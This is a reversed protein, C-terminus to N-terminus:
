EMMSLLREKPAYGVIKNAVEGNKICLVTPISVIGFRVALEMEEDVDVKCVTYQPNEKAIEDVIPSVMQCPGCWTAYFDLMVSKESKLVVSEFNEKTVKIVM